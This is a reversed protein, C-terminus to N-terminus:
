ITALVALRNRLFLLSQASQGKSAPTVQGCNPCTTEPIQYGFLDNRENIANVHAAIMAHQDPTLTNLVKEYRFVKSRATRSINNVYTEYEVPILQRTNQNILYINDIYPLYTITQSHDETFQDSFYGTEILVSYLSPERFAIAFKSSIPVIDSVYLGDKTQVVDSNYLDWFKKEAEGQFKPDNKAKDEEESTLNFDVMSMIDINDTLYPKACKQNQCDIPLFNADTFSAIYIGMFLHDYDAFAVSKLWNEFGNDGVPKPTVIHDYIIKLAARANPTRSDIHSRILEMNAGSVERMQFTVGTAPLVWKAVAASSTQLIDNSKTGKSAVTFGTLDLKQSVPRIKKTILDKLTNLQKDEDVAVVDSDDEDGLEDDEIAMYTRAIKTVKSAIGKSHSEKNEKPQEVPKATEEVKAPIQEVEDEIRETANSYDETSEVKEIEAFLIDEEPVPNNMENEKPPMNSEEKRTLTIPRYSQTESISTEADKNEEIETNEDTTNVSKGNQVPKENEDATERDADLKAMDEFYDKKKEEVYQDFPGGKKFIDDEISTRVDVGLTDQKKQEESKFPLNSFDAPVRDNKSEEIVPQSKRKNITMGASIGNSSNGNQVISSEGQVIGASVGSQLTEENDGQVLTPTFPQKPENKLDDISPM